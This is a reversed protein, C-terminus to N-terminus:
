YKLFLGRLYRIDGRKQIVQKAIVQSPKIDAFFDIDQINMRSSGSRIFGTTTLALPVLSITGNCGLGIPFAAGSINGLSIPDM